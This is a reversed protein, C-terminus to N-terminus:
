RYPSWRGFRALLLPTQDVNRGLAAAVQEPEQSRAQNAPWYGTRQAIIELQQAAKVAAVRADAALTEIAASVSELLTELEEPLPNTRRTVDALHSDWDDM